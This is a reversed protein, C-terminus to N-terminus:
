FVQIIIYVCKNKLYEGDESFSFFPIHKTYASNSSCVSNIDKKLLYYYSHNFDILFYSVVYLIPPHNRFFKLSLELAQLFIFTKSFRALQFYMAKTTDVMVSQM